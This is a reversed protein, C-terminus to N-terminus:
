VLGRKIEWDIEPEPVIQTIDPLDVEKDLSTVADEPLGYFSLGRFGSILSSVQSSLFHCESLKIHTFATEKQDTKM